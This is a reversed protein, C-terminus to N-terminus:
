ENGGQQANLFANIEEANMSVLKEVGLAKLGDPLSDYAAKADNVAKVADMYDEPAGTLDNEGNLGIHQNLLSMDGTRAIKALINHIGVDDRFSNIYEDRNYKAVAVLDDVVVVDDDGVDVAKSKVQYEVIDKEVIYTSKFSPSTIDESFQSVYKKPM